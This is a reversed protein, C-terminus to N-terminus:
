GAAADEVAPLTRALVRDLEETTYPKHLVAVDGATFASDGTMFAVPLGIEERLRQAVAPGSMGPLRVDVLAASWRQARPAELQELAVEASSVVDVGYGQRELQRQLLRALM